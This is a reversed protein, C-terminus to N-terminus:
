FDIKFKLKLKHKSHYNKKELCFSDNQITPRAFFLQEQIPLWKQNGSLQTQLLGPHPLHTHSVDRISITYPNEAYM